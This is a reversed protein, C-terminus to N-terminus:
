QSFQHLIIPLARCGQETLKYTETKFPADPAMAEAIQMWGKKALCAWLKSNPSDFATMAQADDRDLMMLLVSLDGPSCAAMLESIRSDSAWIAMTQQYVSM